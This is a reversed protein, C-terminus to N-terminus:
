DSEYISLNIFAEMMTVGLCCFLKSLTAVRTGQKGNEINSIMYPYVGSEYQLDRVSMGASNRAHKLARGVQKIDLLCAEEIKKSDM